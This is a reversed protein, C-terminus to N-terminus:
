IKELEMKCVPCIGAATYTTDGQCKMPCQYTFVESETQDVPVTANSNSNEPQDCAAFLGLVVLILISLRKM